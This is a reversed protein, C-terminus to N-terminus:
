ADLSSGTEDLSQLLARPCIQLFTSSKQQQMVLGNFLIHHERADHLDWFSKWICICSIALFEKSQLM